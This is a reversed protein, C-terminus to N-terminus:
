VAEAAKRRKRRSAFQLSTLVIAVLILGGRFADQLYTSVNLLVLLNSIVGLIVTGIVAGLM